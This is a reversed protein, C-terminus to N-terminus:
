TALIQPLEGMRTDTYIHPNTLSSIANPHTQKGTPPVKKDEKCIGLPDM